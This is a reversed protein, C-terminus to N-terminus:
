DKLNYNRIKPPRPPRPCGKTRAPHARSPGHPPPPKAKAQAEMKVGTIAFAVQTGVPSPDPHGLSSAAPGPVSDDQSTLGSPSSGLDLLKWTDQLPSSAPSSSSRTHHGSEKHPGPAPHPRPSRNEKQRTSRHQRQGPGAAGAACGPPPHSSGVTQAAGPQVDGPRAPVREERRHESDQAAFHPQLQGLPAELTPLPHRPLKGPARALAARLRNGMELLQEKEECLRLIKRTAERLRRQLRPVSLDETRPPGQDAPVEGSRVAKDPAGSQQRSGLHEELEAMQKQLELVELHVQDVDRPLEHQIIDPDLPRQLVKQKLRAVLVTTLHTRDRLRRLAQGVPARGASMAGGPAEAPCHVSPQVDAYSSSRKAPDLVAEIQEELTKLKDKLNRIETELVMVHDPAEAAAEPRPRPEEPGGAQGGSPAPPLVHESLTEMEKRMESVARRLSTNQEQLRQIENSPFSKRTEEERHRLLVQVEKDPLLGRTRLAEVAQDRELSLAQLVVEQDRLMRETEQLKAAAQDRAETLAQILDESKRYHDREVSDCRQRWDLELQARERELCRERDAAASLQQKYRGVDQQCRALHAKLEGAEEQLSQIQLDRSIIDKSLQGVQADWGSRLTSADERLQDVAADKEKLADAQRWEARRLQLELTECRAQLELARAELVRLQEAHAEKVAALAVDRERALHDLEEHKRRFVEEEKKRSLQVSNLKGELDKIRADKAAALDRLEQRSHQLQEELGANAAEAGRLSEAAQAAAEKLAGLEKNLLKVKLEQTLVANSMGDAQLRFGHERKQMESEFELQLEQRQLALEGELEELKRQLQWKLNEYQERQQDMESNKDSHIRELELRHEQQKLQLQQQLDERRQAEGALAQRLRAVQVRLESLEAQRAEERGRAEAFAADYRELELDREELVQLNYAFDEQLCRLAGQAEHLQSHAAQLRAEQLQCRHAQLARWEEEKRALLQSLAAESPSPPPLM